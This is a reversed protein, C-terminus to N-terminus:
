PLMLIAVAIIAYDAIFMVASLIPKRILSINLITILILAGIACLILGGYDGFMRASQKTSYTLILILVCSALSVLIKTIESATIPSNINNRGSYRINGAILCIFIPISFPVLFIPGNEGVEFKFFVFLALLTLISIINFKWRSNM